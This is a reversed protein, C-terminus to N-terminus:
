TPCGQDISDLKLEVRWQLEPKVSKEMEQGKKYRQVQIMVAGCYQVTNMVQRILIFLVFEGTDM